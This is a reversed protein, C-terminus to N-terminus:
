HIDSLVVNTRYRKGDRYIIMGVTDGTPTLGVRAVLHDDNEIPKGNFEVIIDGRQLNASAAPSGPRVVKVLAGTKHRFGRSAMDAASFEPDLVVGLYGRRLKGFRILQDAVQV